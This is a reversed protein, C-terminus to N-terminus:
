YSWNWNLRRWQQTYTWCPVLPLINLLTQYTRMTWTWTKKNIEMSVWCDCFDSKERTWNSCTFLILMWSGVVWTIFLFKCKLVVASGPPWCQQIWEVTDAVANQIKDKANSDKIFNHAIGTGGPFGVTDGESIPHIHGNLWVLRNGSVIYVLEDELSHANKLHMLFWITLECPYILPILGVWLVLARHLYKLIAGLDEM